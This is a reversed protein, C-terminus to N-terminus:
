FTTQSHAGAATLRQVAEGNKRKLAIDLPTKGSDNKKNFDSISKLLLRIREGAGEKINEAALHLLTNGYNDTAGTDAGAEIFAQLIASGASDFAAYMLPSRGEKDRLNIEAGYQQMLKLGQFPDRDQWHALQFLPSLGLSNLSNPDAGARLLHEAPALCTIEPALAKHLATGGMTYPTENHINVDCGAALIAEFIARKRTECSTVSYLLSRKWRNLVNPNAGAALLQKVLAVAQKKVARILASSGTRNSHDLIAGRKTLLAITQAPDKRSSGAVLQHLFTNGQNDTLNPDTGKALLMASAKEQDRNNHATMMLPTRGTRDRANIDAGAELLLDIIKEMKEPNWSLALYHLPTAGDQDALTPDAGKALLLTVAASRGNKVAIILPTFEHPHDTHNQRARGDIDAGAALLLEVMAAMSKKGKVAYHLAAYGHRDFTNIAAGHRICDLAQVVNGAAAASRLRRTWYDRPGGRASPQRQSELSQIAALIDPCNGLAEPNKAADSLLKKLRNSQAANYPRLGKNNESYICAKNDILLAALLEDDYQVAWHLLTNGSEDRSNVDAGHALLITIASRINDSIQKKEKKDAKAWLPFQEATIMFVPLVKRGNIVACPTSIEPNKELITTLQNIDIPFQLSQCLAAHDPNRKEEVKRRIKLTLNDKCVSVKKQQQKAKNSLVRYVPRGHPDQTGYLYFAGFMLATSLVFYLPLKFKGKLLPLLCVPVALLLHLAALPLQMFLMVGMAEMGTRTASLCVIIFALDIVILLSLLYRM